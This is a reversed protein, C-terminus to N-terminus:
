FSRLGLGVRFLSHKEKGLGKTLIDAVMDNTGCYSVKIENEQLKKRIFHYQIDIHKTRAHYVANKALAIAGQSDCQIHIPETTRHFDLEILLRKIWTSEKTAQCLAMYEAETSSLAVTPQKKSNWVVAGGALVFTYGTTSCRDDLAGAWDADTYGQIASDDDYTLEHELTGKLYRFIHKVAKWHGEGPNSSYRSVAGVAYAVDPRTGLMAYMLSGVANQYPVGKMRDTEIQDDCKPSMDNSLKTGPDMPTLTPYCDQMNFRNLIDSIYKKQNIRIQRKPRDRLIQIGLCYHADGLDKMDFCKNLQRKLDELEQVCNAFILLDDVYLAVM